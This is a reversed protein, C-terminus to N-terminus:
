KDEKFEKIENETLLVKMAWPPVRVNEYDEPVVFVFATEYPTKETPFEGYGDTFYILGKLKTFAGANILTKVLAFVPRFDTGGLGKIVLNKIYDDFEEESTIHVVEQILADCQIICLNIKKSFSETSKLINFTKQLFKQVIDGSTSGSTDIAIVFDTIKYDDKYELPEILPMNEYLNLGYTYFVYDFEDPNVKSVEQMQAFKRLFSTYDYKERNLHKLQQRLGGAKDGHMKNFSEMNLEVTGSVDKWLKELEDKSVQMSQFTEYDDDDFDDSNNNDKLKKNWFSHDDVYFTQAINDLTEKSLNEKDLFEIISIPNIILINNDFYELAKLKKSDMLRLSPINITSILQEVAIDCAMNLLPNTKIYFLHMFICHLLTHIIDHTVKNPNTKYTKIIMSENYFLFKGNTSLYKVKNSPKPTLKALAVDVFRMELLITNFVTDIIKKSLLKIVKEKEKDTYEM